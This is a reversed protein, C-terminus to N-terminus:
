LRNMSSTKPIHSVWSSGACSLSRHSSNQASMSLHCPSLHFHSRGDRATSKMSRVIVITSPRRSVVKNSFAMFKYQFLWSNTNTDGEWNTEGKRRKWLVSRRVHVWLLSASLFIKSNKWRRTALPWVWSAKPGSKSLASALARAYMCSLWSSLSRRLLWFDKSAWLWTKRWRWYWGFSGWDRSMCRIQLSCISWGSPSVGRGSISFTVPSLTPILLSTTAYLLGNFRFFLNETRSMLPLPFDTDSCKACHLQSGGKKPICPRRVSM